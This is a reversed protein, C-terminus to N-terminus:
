SRRGFNDSRKGGRRRRKPVKKQRKATGPPAVMSKLMDVAKRKQLDRQKVFSKKAASKVNEGQALNSVFDGATSLATKGAYALGKKVIPSRFINGLVDGIGHGKQFRSGTFFMPPTGRGTKAQDGYYKRLASLDDAM